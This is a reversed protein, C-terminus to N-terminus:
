EPPPLIVNFEKCINEIKPFQAQFYYPFFYKKSSVYCIVSYDSIFAVNQRIISKDEGLAESLVKKAEEFVEDVPIDDPIEDEEIEDNDGDQLLLLIDALETDSYEQTVPLLSVHNLFDFYESKKNELFINEFDSFFALAKKGEDTALYNDFIFRNFQM